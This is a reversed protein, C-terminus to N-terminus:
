RGEGMIIASALATPKEVRMIGDVALTATVALAFINIYMFQRRVLRWEPRQVLLISSGVLGMASVAMAWGAAVSVTVSYLPLMLAIVATAVIWMFTIRAVQELSFRDMLTPLGAQRYDDGHRMVLLWFHPIQWVFFFGAVALIQFTWGGGAAVYGMVPPIAGIVSGPVVAFPTVRKLPTYIGNYWVVAVWGLGAVVWTTGFGLILTGALALLAGFIVASSLAMEGSPLPRRKTRAMKRDIDVEQCQNWVASACAMMFIGIATVGLGVNVEGSALLYGAMMTIMSAITIRWKTLEILLSVNHFLRQIM